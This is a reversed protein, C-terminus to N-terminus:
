TDSSASRDIAKQHQRIFDAFQLDKTYMEFMRLREETSLGATDSIQPIEDRSVDAYINACGAANEYRRYSEATASESEFMPNFKTARELSPLSDGYRLPDESDEKDYGDRLTRALFFIVGSAVLLFGAVSAIAIGVVLPESVYEECHEGRFWWNEGVRCRCIAGKGPVIDCKGDNLCFDAQLDCVSQCPLGDVSFYGVNCVCEAEGSWRNVTCKSYENCAQFKCPDAQDGSEVDLSYKDISLNMTQFASNAFDELILYVTHTVGHPVPKGFKMRSNVVISGNRFNLIELNQFNSLNSQLYPVLLELFRHELAKYEKSSKNFLDESFMMNTVRLSFFVMLDKGPNTPMAIGGINAVGDGDTHSSEDYVEIVDVTVNTASATGEAIVDAPDVTVDTSTVTTDTGYHENELKHTNHDPSTSALEISVDAEKVRVVSEEESAELLKETPGFTPQFFSPLITEPTEEIKPTEREVNVDNPSIETTAPDHTAEEPAADSIRTFPSEKEPSSISHSELVAPAATALNVVLIEDQAQDEESIDLFPHPTALAETTNVRQEKLIEVRRSEDEPDTVVLSHNDTISEIEPPKDTIMDLVSEKVTFSEPNVVIPSETSAPLDLNPPSTAGPLEEVSDRGENPLEPLSPAEPTYYQPNPYDTVPSQISFPESPYYDEYNGSAELTQPPLEVPLTETNWFVLAAATTTYDPHTSIDQTVPRRHLFVEDPDKETSASEARSEFPGLDEPSETLNFETIEKVKEEEREKTIPEVEPDSLHVDGGVSDGEEQDKEEEFDVAEETKVPMWPLVDAGQDGGSSGSGSGDDLDLDARPAAPVPPETTQSPPHTSFGEAGVVIDGNSTSLTEETNSLLFGEAGINGNHKTPVFTTGPPLTTEDLIIVDNESAVMTGSGKWPEVPFLFDDKKLFIDDVDLDQGPADPPKEAALANDMFDNSEEPKTTPKGGPSLQDVPEQKRSYPYGDLTTNSVLIDRNLAKTINNRFDTITYTVTPQEVGDRYFREVRNSQLNIYDMTENSVGTVDVELIVAYHVLVALIGRQLDKQPRFEVVFVKKFGPLKKLAEDIKDTFHKAVRQYYVSSPDRLADKYSEGKLQISLEVVHEKTPGSPRKMIDKIENDLTNKVEPIFDPIGLFNHNTEETVWYLDGNNKEETPMSVGTETIVEHTVEVTPEKAAKPTSTTAADATKGDAAKSPVEGPVEPPHEESPDLVIYESGVEAAKPNIEKPTEARKEEVQIIEPTEKESPETTKENSAELSLKKVTETDTTEEVASEPTIEVIKPPIGEVVGTMLQVEEAKQPVEEPSEPTLEVKVIIKDSESLEELDEPVIEVETKSTVEAELASEDTTHEEDEPNAYVPRRSTHDEKVQLTEPGIEVVVENTSTAWTDQLITEPTIEDSSAMTLFTTPDSIHKDLIEPTKEKIYQPADSTVKVPPDHVISCESPIKVTAESIDLLEPNSSYEPSLEAADKEGAAVSTAEPSVDPILMSKDEEDTTETADDLTIDPILEGPAQEDTTDSTLGPSVDLTLETADETIDEEDAPVESTEEVTNDSYVAEVATATIEENVIDPMVETDAGLPAESILSSEPILEPEPVDTDTTEVIFETAAESPIVAAADELDGVTHDKSHVITTKETEEDVEDNPKHIVTVVPKFTVTDNAPASSTEDVPAMDIVLVADKEGAEVIIATETTVDRGIVPITGDTTEEPIDDTTETSVVEAIKIVPGATTDPIVDVDGRLTPFTDPQAAMAEDEKQTTIWEKEPLTAETPSCVKSESSTPESYSAAAM